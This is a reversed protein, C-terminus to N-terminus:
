PTQPDAAPDAMMALLDLDSAPPLFIAELETDSLLSPMLASLSAHQSIGLLM